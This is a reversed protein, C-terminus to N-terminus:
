AVYTGNRNRIANLIEIRRGLANKPALPVTGDLHQDIIWGNPFHFWAAISWTDAYAGYADLIEKIISLPQFLSDFQFLPYYDKDEYSVSFVRGSWRWYTATSIELESPEKQLFDIEDATLWDGDEFIKKM